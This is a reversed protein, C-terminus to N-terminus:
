PLCGNKRRNVIAAFYRPSLAAVTINFPSGTVPIIRATLSSLELVGIRQVTVTTFNALRAYLKHGPAQTSTQSGLAIGVREKLQDFEAPQYAAGDPTVIEVNWCGDSILEGAKKLAALVTERHLTVSGVTDHAVIVFIV